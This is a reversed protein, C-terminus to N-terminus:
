IQEIRIRRYEFGRDLQKEIVVRTYHEPLLDVIQEAWEILCAGTGYIRDAFGIEEMEEIDEIRYVDFHYFPLRGDEYEQVITFTPSSVDEKVGLGKAFGKSFLTKGVGLAGTLCLVTGEKAQEGLSCAIRFTDAPSWSDYEM